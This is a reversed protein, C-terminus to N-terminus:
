VDSPISYSDCELVEPAICRFPLPRHKSQIDYVLLKNLKRSLGFDGLKVVYHSVVFVNKTSLDRHVIKM